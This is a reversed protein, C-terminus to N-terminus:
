GEWETTRAAEEAPGCGARCGSTWVEKPSRSELRQLDVSEERWRKEIERGPSPSAARARAMSTSYSTITSPVPSLSHM